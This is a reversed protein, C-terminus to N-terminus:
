RADSQGISGLETVAKAATPLSKSTAAVQSLARAIDKLSRFRRDWKFKGQYLEVVDALRDEVTQFSEKDRVKTVLDMSLLEEVRRRRDVLSKQNETYQKGLSKLKRLQAHIAPDQVANEASSRVEPLIRRGSNPEKRHLGLIEFVRDAYYPTVEDRVVQGIGFPELLSAALAVTEEMRAKLEKQKEELQRVGEALTLAEATFSPLSLYGEVQLLTAIDRVARFFKLVRKLSAAGVTSIVFPQPNNKTLIVICPLATRPDLKFYRCIEDSMTETKVLIDSRAEPLVDNVGVPVWRHGYRRPDSQVVDGPMYIHKWPAEPDILQSCVSRGSFFFLAVEPGLALTVTARNDFVSALFTSDRLTGGLLFCLVQESTTPQNFWSLV